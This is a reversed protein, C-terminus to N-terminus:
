CSSEQFVDRLILQPALVSYEVDVADAQDQLEEFKLLANELWTDALEHYENDTLEVPRPSEATASKASSETDPM